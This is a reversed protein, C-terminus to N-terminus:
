FTLSLGLGAASAGFRLDPGPLEAIPEAIPTCNADVHRARYRRWADRADMPRLLLRSLGLITGGVSHTFAGSTRELGLLIVGSAAAVYLVTGTVGLWGHLLNVGDHERGLVQELARMKDLREEPTRAPMARDADGAGMIPPTVFLLTAIALTSGTLGVLLENRSGEDQAAGALIGSTAAMTGHLFAFTTYWRRAPPEHDRIMQRLVRLRQSVERDSPAEGCTPPDAHALSPSGAALTLLAALAFHTAPRRPVGSAIM